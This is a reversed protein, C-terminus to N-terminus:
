PSWPGRGARKRCSARDQRVPRRKLEVQAAGQRIREPPLEPDLRVIGDGVVLIERVANGGVRDPSRHSAVADDHAPGNPGAEGRRGHPSRSRCRTRCACTASAATRRPRSTDARPRASPPRCRRTRRERDGRVPDSRRPGARCRDIRSCSKTMPSTSSDRNSSAQCRAPMSFYRIPM